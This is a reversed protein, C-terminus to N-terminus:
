YPSVGGRAALPVPCALPYLATSLVTCSTAPFSGAQRLPAKPDHARDAIAGLKELNYLSCVPWCLLVAATPHLVQLARHRVQKNAQVLDSLLQLARHHLLPDGERLVQM